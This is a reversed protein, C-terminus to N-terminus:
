KKINPRYLIDRLKNVGEDNKMRDCIEEFKINKLCQTLFVISYVGCDYNDFQKQIKNVHSKFEDDGVQAVVKNMFENVERPARSGVSDYFYIGYNPKSKNLNCYLSIWHEGGQTSPDTNFVIGFRKKKKDLVNKKVDFTCLSDGICVGNEEVAFDIPFVGIFMFDKYLDEYQEMVYLIDYTNLWTNKDYDWSIPKRPRFAKELKAIKESDTLTQRIWCFQHKDCIKQYAELLQDRIEAKTKGKIKRDPWKKNFERALLKLENMNFCTKDKQGKYFLKPSCHLETM